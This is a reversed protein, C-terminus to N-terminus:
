APGANAEILRQVDPAWHGAYRRRLQPIQWDTGEVMQRCRYSPCHCRLYYSADTVSMAYDVLLEEGADLDRLTVLEDAAWGLNPDCGHNLTGAEHVPAGPRLVVTGAPIPATAFLGRGAVPSPREELDPHVRGDL